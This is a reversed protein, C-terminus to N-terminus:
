RDDISMRAASSPHDAPTRWPRDLFVIWSNSHRSPEHEINVEGRISRAFDRTEGWRMAPFRKHTANPNSAAQHEGRYSNITETWPRGGRPGACGHFEPDTIPAPNRALISMEQPQHKRAHAETPRKAPTPNQPRALLRKASVRKRLLKSSPTVLMSQPQRKKSADRDQEARHARNAQKMAGARRAIAANSGITRAPAVFLPGGRNV